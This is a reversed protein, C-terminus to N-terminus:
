SMPILIEENPIYEFLITISYTQTKNYLSRM